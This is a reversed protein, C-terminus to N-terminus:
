ASRRRDWYNPASGDCPAIDYGKLNVRDAEAQADAASDFTMARFQNSWYAGLREHPPLLYIHYPEVPHGPRADTTSMSRIVFKSRLAEIRAAIRAQAAARDEPTRTM